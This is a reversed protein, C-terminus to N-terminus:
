NGGFIIEVVAGSENKINIKVNILMAMMLAASIGIGHGMSSDKKYREINLDGFGEGDDSIKIIPVNESKYLEVTVNERAFKIANSIFNQLIRTLMIKDTRVFYESVNKTFIINKDFSYAKLSSIKEDLFQVLEVNEFKINIKSLDNAEYKSLFLINEVMNEMNLTEQLIARSSNKIDKMFGCEMGEAYGKIILLPTRLDHSVNEFFIKNAKESAIDKLLIWLLFASIIISILFIIILIHANNKLQDIFSSMNKYIVFYKGRITQDEYKSKIISILFNESNLTVSRDIKEDFDETLIIKKVERVIANNEIDKENRKYTEYFDKNYVLINVDPNYVGIYKRINSIVKKSKETDEYITAYDNKNNYSDNLESIIISSLGDIANKSEDVNLKNEVMFFSVFSIIPLTIFIFLAIIFIKLKYKNIKFM